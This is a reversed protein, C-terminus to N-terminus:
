LPLHEDVPVLESAEQLRLGGLEILEIEVLRQFSFTITFASSSFSLM